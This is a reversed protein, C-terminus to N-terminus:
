ANIVLFLHNVIVKVLIHLKVNNLKWGYHAGSDTYGFLMECNPAVVM